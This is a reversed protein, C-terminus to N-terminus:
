ICKEKCLRHLNISRFNFAWSKFYTRLPVRHTSISSILSQTLSQKGHNKHNRQSQDNKLYTPITIQSDNRLQNLIAGSIGKQTSRKLIIIWIKESYKRLFRLLRIQKIQTALIKHKKDIKANIWFIIIMSVLNLLNIFLHTFSLTTLRATIKLFKKPPTM